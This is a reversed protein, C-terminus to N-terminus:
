SRSASAVLVMAPRVSSEALHFITASCTRAACAAHFFTPGTGSAAARVRFARKWRAQVRTASFISQALRPSYRSRRKRDATLQCSEASRTHAAPLPWSPAQSGSDAAVALRWGTGARKMALYVGIAVVLAPLTRGISGALYYAVGGCAWAVLGALDFGLNRGYEGARDYLAETSVASRVLSFRALLIGGVPVLVGGLVMMFNAYRDLWAGSFLSLGAAILGTSWVTWQDGARPVLSRLALSSMYINVFNTTVTALTMLVAGSVGLKLALLMAGPDSSAAARAAIVGLPMLWLSTLALGVFM